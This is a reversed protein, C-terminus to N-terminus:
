SAPLFQAIKALSAHFSEAIGDVFGPNQDMYHQQEESVLERELTLRSSSCARVQDDSSDLGRLETQLARLKSLAQESTFQGANFAALTTTMDSSIAERQANAAAADGLKAICDHERSAASIWDPNAQIRSSVDQIAVDLLSQLDAFANFVTTSQQTCDGVTDSPIADLTSTSAGKEVYDIALEIDSRGSASLSAAVDNIETQYGLDALCDQLSDAQARTTAAEIEPLTYGVAKYVAAYLPQQDRTYPVGSSSESSSAPTVDGSGCSGLLVAVALSAAVIDSPRRLAGGM